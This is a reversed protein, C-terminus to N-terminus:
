ESYRTRLADRPLRLKHSIAVSDLQYGGVQEIFIRVDFPVNDAYERLM